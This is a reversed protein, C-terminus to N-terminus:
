RPDGLRKHPFPGDRLEPAPDVLCEGIDLLAHADLRRGREGADRHPELKEVTCVSTFTVLEGSKEVLDPRYKGLLDGGRDPAKDEDEPRSLRDRYQAELFVRALQVV